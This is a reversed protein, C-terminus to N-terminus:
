LPSGIQGESPDGLHAKSAATVHRVTKYCISHFDGNIVQTQRGFFHVEAHVRCAGMM